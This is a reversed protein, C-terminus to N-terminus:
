SRSREPLVQIEPQVHHLDRHRRQALALAVDWQQYSRKQIFKGIWLPRRPRYGLIGHAPQNGVIPRSVYAFQLIRDLAGHRQARTRDQVYRIQWRAQLIRGRARAPFHRVTAALPVPVGPSRACVAASWRPCAPPPASEPFQSSSTTGSTSATDCPAPPATFDRRSDTHSGLFSPRCRSSGRNRNTSIRRAQEGSARM